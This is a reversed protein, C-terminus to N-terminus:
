NSEKLLQYIKYNLIKTFAIHHPFIEEYITKLDKLSSDIVLQQNQHYKNHLEIQSEPTSQEQEHNYLKCNLIFKTIHQLVSNHLKFTAQVLEQKKEMLEPDHIFLHLHDEAIDFELQKESFDLDKRLLPEYYDYSYYALSFTKLSNLWASYKTNLEILADRELTKISHFSNAYISLQSKLQETEKTFHSKTEEVIKTIVGIDERTAVRKGKETFYSKFFALYLNLIILLAQLIIFYYDFQM